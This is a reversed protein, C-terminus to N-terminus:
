KSDQLSICQQKINTWNQHVIPVPWNCHIIPIILSPVRPIVLNNAQIFYLIGVPLHVVLISTGGNLIVPINKSCFHNAKVHNGHRSWLGLPTNRFFSIITLTTPLAPQTNCNSNPFKTPNDFNLM